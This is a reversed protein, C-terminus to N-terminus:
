KKYPYYIKQLDLTLDNIHQMTKQRSEANRLQHLEGGWSQQLEDEDNYQSSYKKSDSGMSIVARYIEERTEIDKIHREVEKRSLFELLCEIYKYNEEQFSIYADKQIALACQHCANLILNLVHSLVEYKNEIVNGINTNIPIDTIEMYRCNEVNHFLCSLDYIRKAIQMEMRDYLISIFLEIKRIRKRLKSQFNM